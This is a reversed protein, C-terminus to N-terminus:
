KADISRSEEVPKAAAWIQSLDQDSLREWHEPIPAFRRREKGRDFCLWGRSLEPDSSFGPIVDFVFCDDANALCIHRYM